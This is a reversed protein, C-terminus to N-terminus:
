TRGRCWPCPNFRDSRKGSQDPAVTSNMVFNSSDSTQCRNTSAESGGIVTNIATGVMQTLIIAYKSRRNPVSLPPSFVLTSAFLYLCAAADSRSAILPEAANGPEILSAHAPIALPYRSRSRYPVVSVPIKYEPDSSGPPRISTLPQDSPSLHNSTEVAVIM